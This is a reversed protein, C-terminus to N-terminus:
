NTLLFKVCTQREKGSFSGKQTREKNKKIKILSTELLLISITIGM